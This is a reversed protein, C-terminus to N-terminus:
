PTLKLIKKRILSNTCSRVRRTTPKGKYFDNDDSSHPPDFRPQLFVCGLAIAEIPAPGEYPFGLGVFVQLPLCITKCLDRYIISPHVLISDPRVKARRLLQLFQEQTLLGHNRVFSPLNSSHGPSEFVTAHTELEEGILRVYESKGQHPFNVCIPGLTYGFCMLGRRKTM